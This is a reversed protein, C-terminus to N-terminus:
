QRIKIFLQLELTLNGSLRNNMDWNTLSIVFSISMTTYQEMAFRHFIGGKNEDLLFIRPPTYEM